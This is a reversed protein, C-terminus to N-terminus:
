KGGGMKSPDFPKGDMTMSQTKWVMKSLKWMSGQKVYSDTSVGSFVLTHEKKDPGMNSGGLRHRTSGSARNGMQKLSLSKAECVTIKKLSGLGMKMNAFMQDFNQSRGDEVYVFDKTVAAKMVKSLTAFDKKKMANTIKANSAAVQSKLSDAQAYSVLAVFGLTLAVAKM